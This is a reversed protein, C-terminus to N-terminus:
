RASGSPLIAGSEIDLWMSGRLTLNMPQALEGEYTLNWVDAGGIDRVASVWQPGLGALDAHSMDTDPPAVIEIRVITSGLQEAIQIVTATVGDLVEVSQDPEIEFPIDVPYLIRYRDIRIADVDSEVTGEPVTFRAARADVNAVGGPIEEGNVVMTWQDAFVTPLEAAPIVDWGNFPQWRWGNAEDLVPSLHVLDFRLAASTGNIELMQPVLVAPGLPIESTEVYVPGGAAAVVPITTTSQVAPDSDADAITDRSFFLFSAFAAVIAVGAAAIGVSVSSGKM